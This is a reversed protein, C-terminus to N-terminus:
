VHYTTPLTLHTYSVAANDRHLCYIDMRDLMLRDLSEELQPKIFKPECDPTHAGKGLVMVDESLDNTKIWEGLNNTLNELIISIPLIM